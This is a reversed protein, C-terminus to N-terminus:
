SSMRRRSTVSASEMAAHRWPTRSSYPRSSATTLLAPTELKSGVISIDVM